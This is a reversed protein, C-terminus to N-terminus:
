KPARLVAVYFGDGGDLPTLSRSNELAWDPNRALFATVQDGNEQNLLSCTAFALVGGKKVMPACDDMIQAQIKCLEDLRTQTLRWKEGPARRWSGTGSCPVDCLVLDYPADMMPDDTEHVKVDARAARVELDKMRKPDADHAYFLGDIKAAMALSKGGGGACYDLVRDGNKLPLDDVIAQSGADQLEVLGDKFANSQAVRRPNKMVELATPSLAHPITDIDEDALASRAVDRTALTTNVRLFVPARDQLAEAILPMDDGLSAEFHPVIWDPLDFKENGEPARGEGDFETLPAPAHGEGTFMTELPIEADRLLGMMLGRGTAIGGLAAFSRQCRVADYVYDRVAVRDKSGAYRNNRAWLTLVKEAPDGALIDDLIEIAAAVRAAPTM